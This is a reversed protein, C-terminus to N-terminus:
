LLLWGTCILWNYSNFQWKPQVNGRWLVQELWNVFYVHYDTLFTIAMLFRVTANFCCLVNLLRIIMFCEPQLLLSYFWTKLFMFAQKPRNGLLCYPLYGPSVREWTLHGWHSARERTAVWVDWWFNLGFLSLGTFFTNHPPSTLIPFHPLHWHLIM